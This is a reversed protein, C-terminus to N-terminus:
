WQIFLSKRPQEGPANPDVATESRTQREANEQAPKTKARWEPRVDALQGDLRRKLAELVTFVQRDVPGNRFMRKKSPHISLFRWLFVSQAGKIFHPKLTDRFYKVGDAARLSERDLLGTRCRQCTQEETSSRRKRSWASNSGVLRRNWNRSYISRYVRRVINWGYIRGTKRQWENNVNNCCSGRRQLEILLEEVVKHNNIHEKETSRVHRSVTFVLCCGM